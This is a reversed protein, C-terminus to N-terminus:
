SSRERWGWIRSITGLEREGYGSRGGRAQQKEGAIEVRYLWESTDRRVRYVIVICKLNRKERVLQLLQTQSEKRHRTVDLHRADRWCWCLFASPAFGSRVDCLLVAHEAAPVIN